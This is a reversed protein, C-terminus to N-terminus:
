EQGVGYWNKFAPAKIRSMQISDPLFGSPSLIINLKSNELREFGTIMDRNLIYKRNLRFFLESPLLKEAKDLSQDLLYKNKNRTILVAYDGEVYIGAIESFLINLSQRGKRVTFGEQRIKKEENRLKESENWLIYYHLGIYIGNVVFFWIVFIFIDFTYFSSPVPSDKAIWNILETTIIIVALAGITTLVLQIGIRKLPKPSYPLKKDLQLIITRITWWAMYGQITDITFTLLTHTNFHISSYTLYYNIANIIPILLIFLPKDRYINVEKKRERM